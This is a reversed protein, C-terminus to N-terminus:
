VCSLMMSEVTASASLLVWPCDSGEVGVDGVSLRPEVKILKKADMRPEFFGSACGAFGCRFM